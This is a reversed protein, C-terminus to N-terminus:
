CKLYALKFPLCVVVKFEVGDDSDYIRLIEGTVLIGRRRCLHLRAVCVDDQNHTVAVPERLKMSNVMEHWFLHSCMESRCSSM